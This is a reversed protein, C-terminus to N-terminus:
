ESHFFPQFSVGSIRIASQTATVFLNQEKVPV